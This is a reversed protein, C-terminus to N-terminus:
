PIDEASSSFQEALGVLHSNKQLTRNRRDSLGGAKALAVPVRLGGPNEFRYLRAGKLITVASRGTYDAYTLVNVLAERLAEHVRSEGVRVEGELRFPV